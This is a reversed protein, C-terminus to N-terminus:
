YCGQSGWVQIAEDNRGEQSGFCGLQESQQLPGEAWPPPPPQWIVPRIPLCPVCYGMHALQCM